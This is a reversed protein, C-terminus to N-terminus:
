QGAKMGAAWSLPARLFGPSAMDWEGLTRTFAAGTGKKFDYVGKATDPDAGGLEYERVGRRRCERLVEWLLAYSAYLKRGKEDAAALLDVAKDGLVACARLAMPGGDEDDARCLFLATDLRRLMSGLEKARHQSALGKYGEMSLYLSEMEGPDPSLWPRVTCRKLGRRLNHGWNSSLGKLLADEPPSLDLLFTANRDLPRVPRNWGESELFRVTEADEPRYSCIRAYLFGPAADRLAQALGDWAPHKGLPGGRCWLLTGGLPLAKRLCQLAAQASGIDARPTKEERATGPPSLGGGPAGRLLRLASWGSDEKHRAWASSQFISRGDLSRVCADWESDPTGEPLVRWGVM